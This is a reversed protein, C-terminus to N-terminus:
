VFKVLHYYQLIGMIGATYCIATVIYPWKPRQISYVIDISDQIAQRVSRASVKKEGNGFSAMMSKHGLINILRPLGQSAQYLMRRAKTSFVQGYPYGATILRHCLYDETEQQTLPPLQYSFVIRQMLQRMKPQRLRRDLEQQGFLVIQLNKDYDTKLNTLLRLTELTEDPMTQAEDVILVVSQNSHFLNKLHERLERELEHRKIDPPLEMGLEQAFSHRFESPTYAPNPMYVPILDESLKRLLQKCLLTKGTGVEGTIKIFGEGNKLSLLITNLADEHGPLQCYFHPNPALEFPMQKLQFHELYM